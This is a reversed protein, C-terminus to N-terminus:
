FPIENEMEPTDFMEYGAQVKISNMYDLAKKDPPSLELDGELFLGAPTKCRSLGVYTLSGIWHNELSIYIQDFTLGQSKHVSCSYGLVFPLQEFSFIVKGNADHIEHLCRGVSFVLGEDSQITVDGHIGARMVTGLTGNAYKGERDNVLMMIRSGISYDVKQPIRSGKYMRGSECRPNQLVVKAMSTIMPNGTLKLMRYNCMEVKKLTSYLRMVSPPPPLIRSDIYDRLSKTDRGYRIDNLADIFEKDKQRHNTTLIIPEVDKWLKSTFAFEAKVPPLQLFDGVFLITVGYEEFYPLFQELLKASCM